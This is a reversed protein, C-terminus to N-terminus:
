KLGLISSSAHKNLLLLGQSLEARYNGFVLLGNKQQLFFVVVFFNQRQVDPPKSHCCHQGLKHKSYLYFNLLFGLQNEISKNLNFFNYVLM